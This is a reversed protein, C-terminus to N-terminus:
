PTPPNFTLFGDIKTTFQTEDHREKERLAEVAAAAPIKVAGLEVVLLYL